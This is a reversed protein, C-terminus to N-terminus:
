QKKEEANKLQFVFNTIRSMAKGVYYGLNLLHNPAMMSEPAGNRVVLPELRLADALTKELSTYAGYLENQALFASYDTEFAKLIAYVGYIRGQAKYFIKDADTNGWTHSEERVKVEFDEISQALLNRMNPLTTLLVSKADTLCAGDTQAYRHLAKHAKRYVSVSSPAPLLNKGKTFLWLDPPYALFDAAKMLNEDPCIKVMARVVTKLSEFLGVQFAPMNNLIYGPFIVPLSPTWMNEETERKILDKMMKISAMNQSVKPAEFDPNREITNTVWAGLLYYLIIGMPVMWLLSRWSSKLKEKVKQWLPLARLNQAGKEFADKLNKLFTKIPM